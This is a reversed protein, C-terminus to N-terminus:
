WRLLVGAADIPQAFTEQRWIARDFVSESPCCDSGNAKEVHNFMFLTDTHLSDLKFIYANIGTEARLFWEAGKDGTQMYIGGLQSETLVIPSQPSGIIASIQLSDINHLDFFDSSDAAIFRIRLVGGWACDVLRCNNNCALLTCFVASVSIFLFINKM